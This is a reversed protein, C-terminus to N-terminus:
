NHFILASQPAVTVKGGQLAGLGQENITGERCVVTYTGEPVEAKAQKASGNLLVTLSKASDFEELNNIRYIILSENDTDLFEVHEKVLDASGLRFGKHEHRLAIMARYYDCLDAYQFM